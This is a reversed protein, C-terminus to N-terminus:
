NEHWVYKHVPIAITGQGEPARVLAQTLSLIEDAKHLGRSRSYMMTTTRGQTGKMTINVMGHMSLLMRLMRTWGPPTGCLLVGAVFRKQYMVALSIITNARGSFFGPVRRRISKTGPLYHRRGVIKPPTTAIPGSTVDRSKHLNMRSMMWGTLATIEEM